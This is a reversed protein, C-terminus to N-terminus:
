DAVAGALNGFDVPYCRGDNLRLNVGCPSGSAAWPLFELEEVPALEDDTWRGSTRHFLATVFVEMGEHNEKRRRTAFPVVSIDSEPNCGHHEVAGTEDWGHIGVVALGRGDRGYIETVPLGNLNRHTKEPKRGDPCPLGLHGLRIECAYPTAARDVRIVGGPIVIEALDIRAWWGPLDCQRYLVGEKMGAFRLNVSPSFTRGDPEARVAYCAATANNGDDAEAPFATNYVLRTYLLDSKKTRVKGPRLEATGTAGHASLTLGPGNLVFTRTQDGLSTWVGEEEVTTWFASDKKLYLASFIKSLWYPSAPKNYSQLVADFPRYFGLGAVGNEFVDDREAFQLLNGSAIRRAWGPAVEPDELLFSCALPASAGFRYVISRGWMPMHGNRGFLCPYTKQFERHRRAVIEAAEPEHKYGYVRCWIPGYFQFAWCSYFDFHTADRYWGDGAYYSGLHSLHDMLVTRDFAVGNRELFAGMMVNFWRWNHSNTRGHAVRSFWELIRARTPGPISNWITNEAFIMGLAFAAGEVTHGLVTRGTSRRTEEFHGVFFPSQPDLAMVLQARYYDAVHHGAVNSEPREEVLPAAIMFTRALAELNVNPGATDAQGPIVLPCVKGVQHRLVGDLLFEAADLWHKRNMGTHPSQVFDPSEIKFAM